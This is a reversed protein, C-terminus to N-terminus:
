ARARRHTGRSERLTRTLAPYAAIADPHECLKALRLAAATATLGLEHHIAADRAAPRRWRRSWTQLLMHDRVTLPDM